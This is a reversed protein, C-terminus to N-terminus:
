HSSTLPLQRDFGLCKANAAKQMKTCEEDVNPALCAFNTRLYMYMCIHLYKLYKLATCSNHAANIHICKYTYYNLIYIM